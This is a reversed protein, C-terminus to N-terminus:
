PADVLAGKIAWAINEALLHNGQRTAHGFDGYCNDWFLAQYSSTALAQKFSSENDVFIVREPQPFLSRLPELSRMPYQVAVLPIGAEDLIRLMELYNDRTIPHFSGRQAAHALEYFRRAEDPHGTRHFYLAFRGIIHPADPQEALAREALAAVAEHRGAREYFDVLCVWTRKDDPALVLARQLAREALKEDGMRQSCAGLDQWASPDDPDLELAPQLVAIAEPCRDQKWLIRGLTFSAATLHPQAELARRLWAEAMVMDQRREAGVALRFAAWGCIPDLDLARQYADDAMAFDGDRELYYGRELLSGVEGGGCRRRLEPSPADMPAPASGAGPSAASSGAGAAKAMVGEGFSRPQFLGSMLLKVARWTRLHDLVGEHAVEATAAFPITDGGDNAGMMAVVLGPRYEEIQQPLKSLLVTSNTSPIGGNIVAVECGLRQRLLEQLQAPWSDEGGFATTSEGLCLVRLETGEGLAILNACRQRGMFLAGGARLGLELLVLVVLAGLVLVSTKELYMRLVVMRSLLLESINLNYYIWIMVAM